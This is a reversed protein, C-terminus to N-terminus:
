SLECSLLCCLSGPKMSATAAVQRLWVSVKGHTPLPQLPVDQQSSHWRCPIFNDRDSTREAEARQPFTAIESSIATRQSEGGASTLPTRQVASLQGWGMGLMGSPDYESSRGEEPGPALGEGGQVCLQPEQDCEVEIHSSVEEM